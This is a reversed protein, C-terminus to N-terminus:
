NIHRLENVPFSASTGAPFVRGCESEVHRTLAVIAFTNPQGGNTDYEKYIDTVQASCSGHGWTVKDGVKFM